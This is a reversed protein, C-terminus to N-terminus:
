HQRLALVDAKAALYTNGEVGFILDGLHVASRRHVAVVAFAPPHFFGDSTFSRKVEVSRALDQETFKCRCIRSCSLGARRIPNPTLGQNRWPGSDPSYCRAIGFSPDPLV